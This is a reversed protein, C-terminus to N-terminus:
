LLELTARVRRRIFRARAFSRTKREKSKKNAANFPTENSHWSLNKSDTIYIHLLSRSLHIGIIMATRNLTITHYSHRNIPNKRAIKWLYAGHM